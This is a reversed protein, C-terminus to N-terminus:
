KTAAAAGYHHRKLHILLLSIAAPTVGSIRSAQGVTQPRHAKLKQRVEFSLSTIGEFDFVDPIEQDEYTQQRDIEEQQRAIYGEYKIQIEVQEAVEGPPVGKPLDVGEHYAMAMLSQYSVNPRKILDSLLYEREIEKGLVARASDSPMMRPNVWTSRLRQVEKEVAERKRSFADWRLDNVLGFQRGQETLRWDANDERLSLRYEARSTFMRYPETVGKTVLDDMLVGMYAQDRRLIFPTEERAFRAANIGALLGQAAAEEYGTTGNIQGAFFLGAILKTELNQKLERPDFYDYEIAYGPRIIHAQELGRLSRILELQVDFPLSTSVGNPYIEHTDLGEPELFVQHANKDAFRHVKDEISPCYRPGIGEIVGSYMPSRDLGGRIIEHTRENTHTMWCSVQRPHMAAAGLYSFVPVPDIDGPQEELIGFNISRGDIRPPTGTKLRGQPLRMEKLRRGLTSASPDGARGASYNDLGVHVLGNLFTGATLVVSRAKFSLGTQTVAGCVRDGALLLDDVAQQFLWLNEQNELRGRIAKRYLVRDAQARTARVAPGKSSNLIRFQIGAEDTAIAM